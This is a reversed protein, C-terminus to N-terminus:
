ALVLAYKWFAIGAFCSNRCAYFMKLNTGKRQYLRISVVGLNLLRKDM